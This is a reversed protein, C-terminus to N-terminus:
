PSDPPLYPLMFEFPVTVEENLDVAFLIQNTRPDLMLANENIQYGLNLFFKSIGIDALPAKASVQAHSFIVVSLAAVLATFIKRTM